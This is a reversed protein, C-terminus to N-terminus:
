KETEFIHICNWQNKHMFSFSAQGGFECSYLKKKYSILFELIFTKLELDFYTEPYGRRVHGPILDNDFYYARSRKHLIKGETIIKEIRKYELEREESAQVTSTSLFFLIILKIFLRYMIGISLM